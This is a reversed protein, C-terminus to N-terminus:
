GSPGTRPKTSARIPAARRNALNTLGCLDINCIRGSKADNKNAAPNSPQKWSSATFVVTAPTSYQTGFCLATSTEPQTSYAVLCRGLEPNAKLIGAESIEFDTSYVGLQVVETRRHWHAANNVRFTASHDVSRGWIVVPHLNRSLSARM